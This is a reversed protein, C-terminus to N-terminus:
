PQQRRQVFRRQRLTGPSTTGDGWNISATFDTAPASTNADSFTAVTVPNDSTGAVFGLPVGVTPTFNSASGSLSADAVVAPGAATLPGGQSMSVTISLNYVRDDAYTHVSSVTFSSQGGVQVGFLYGFGNV